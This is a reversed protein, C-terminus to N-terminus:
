NFTYRLGARGAAGLVGERGRVEGELYSSFNGTWLFNLKAIGQGFVKGEDTPVVASGSVVAVTGGRVEVDSYVLGTLTPEVKVGNWDYATGVRVGGQIRTTRGDEFGLAKTAGDWVAVTHSVGVTPEVWWPMMDFKYNVNFAITYNDLRLGLDPLFPASRNLEFFDVKFTADTSFGGNVYISYLGVGPGDIRASSGDNNSVRASTFGGLVGIVYADTASFINTITVDAGGIGGVTSTTRGLDIGGVNASRWEVDGFGQGWLAYTVTRMLPAKPMAKFVPAASVPKSKTGYGLASDDDNPDWTYRLAASSGGGRRQIADRVSTIMSQVAVIGVQSVGQASQGLTASSSAASCGPSFNFSTPSAISGTVTCSGFTGTFTGTGSNFSGTGGNFPGGVVTCTTGVCNFTGGFPFPFSQAQARASPGLVVM